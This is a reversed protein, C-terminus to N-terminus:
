VRRPSAIRVAVLFWAPQTADGFQVNPNWVPSSLKLKPYSNPFGLHVLLNDLGVWLVFSAAGVIAAEWSWKWRMEEVFPRVTWLLWAGVITKALYIWYRASEGFSGQVATLLVFAGFTTVRAMIPSRAFLSGTQPSEAAM